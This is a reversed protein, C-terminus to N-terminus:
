GAKIDKKISKISTNIVNGSRQVFVILWVFYMVTANHICQGESVSGLLEFVPVNSFSIYVEQSTM